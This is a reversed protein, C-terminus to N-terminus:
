LFDNGSDYKEFQFDLKAALNSPLETQADVSAFLAVYLLVLKLNLFSM